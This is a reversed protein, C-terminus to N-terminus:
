ISADSSHTYDTIQRESLQRLNGDARFTQMWAVISDLATGLRWRCTWGLESRAKSCDLKLYSAEHPHDGADVAYRATKGWRDCIGKVIWEVPRADDDHPGFNWGGCLSM